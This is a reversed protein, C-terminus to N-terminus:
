ALGGVPQPFGVTDLRRHTTGSAVEARARLVADIEARTRDRADARFVRMGDRYFWVTPLYSCALHTRIEGGQDLDCSVRIWGLPRPTDASFRGRADLVNGLGFRQWCVIRVAGESRQIEHRLRDVPSGVNHEGDIFGAGVVDALLSFTVGVPAGDADLSLTPSLLALAGLHRRMALFVSLEGPDAFSTPPPERGLECLASWARDRGDAPPLFAIAAIDDGRVQFCVEAESLRVAMPVVDPVTGRDLM